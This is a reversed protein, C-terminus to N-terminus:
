EGAAKFSFPYSVMVLGGGQPRPFEWRKVAGVVCQEVFLDHMTSSQVTSVLVVGSGGITFQVSVRGDLDPKKTLQQEYCFKVENIHRHVIRRIIEKDLGDGHVIAPSSLVTPAGAQHSMEGCAHHAGCKGYGAYQGGGASRGITGLKESGITGEGDGGGGHGGGSIALGGNGVSEGIETGVLGAMVTDADSGLANTRGFISAVQSKELASAIGLLGASSAAKEALLKAMRAEKNDKPGKIAIRGTASRATPSGMKGAAGAASRGSAGNQVAPGGATPAVPKETPPSIVVRAFREEGLFADMSLTKPDPPLSFTMLLFLLTAVAVGATYLQESWDIALRLPLRHPQAVTSVLFTNQGLEVRCRAGDVIPWAFAGAVSSSPRAHGSEVLAQLTLVADGVTVDGTMAATFVLEHDGGAARVLPFVGRSIVDSSTIFAASEHPGVTFDLRESADLLHHVSLVSEEFLAAIEIARADGLSSRM